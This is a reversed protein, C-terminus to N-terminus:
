FPMGSETPNSTTSTSEETPCPVGREISEWWDVNLKLTSESAWNGIVCERFYVRFHDDGDLRVPALLLVGLKEFDVCMPGDIVVQAKVPHNTIPRIVGTEPSRAFFKEMAVVNISGDAFQTFKEIFSWRTEHGPSFLEEPM